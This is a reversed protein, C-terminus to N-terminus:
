DRNTKKLVICDGVIKIQECYKNLYDLGKKTSIVNPEERWNIDDFFIYGGLKVKPFYNVSDKYALTECHNGDIHLIDISENKFNNVVNESKDKILDVFDNLEFQNIIDSLKKYIQNYDLSSWWNKNDNNSMEELAADKTWPDIGVIIGRENEQLALAQPILSSGGFVGIEVCLEPKNQRIIGNLNKAKDISCWGDVKTHHKSIYEDFTVIM